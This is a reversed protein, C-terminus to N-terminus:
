KADEPLLQCAGRAYPPLVFSFKTIVVKRRTNMLGPQHLREQAGYEEDRRKDTRDKTEWSGRKWRGQNSRKVSSVHFAPQYARLVVILVVVAVVMIM